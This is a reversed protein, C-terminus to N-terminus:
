DNNFGHKSTSSIHIQLFANITLININIAYNGIYNEDHARIGVGGANAFQFCFWKIFEKKTKELTCM